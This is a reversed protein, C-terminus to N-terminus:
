LKCLTESIKNIIKNISPAFVFIFLSLLVFYLLLNVYKVLQQPDIVTRLITETIIYIEFSESAMFHLSNRGVFVMLSKIFSTWKAVILSIGLTLITGIIGQLIDILYYGNKLLHYDIVQNLALPVLAGGTIATILIIMFTNNKIHELQEMIFSKHAFGLYGFPLLIGTRIIMFVLNYVISLLTGEHGMQNVGFSALYCVTYLAFVFAGRYVHNNIFILRRIIFKIIWLSPLFWLTYLGSLTIMKILDNVLREITPNKIIDVIIYIGSYFLYASFLKTDRLLSQKFSIKDDKIMMGAIVFFLPVHFLYIYRQPYGGCRHGMFVLLIGIAKAVDIESIRNKNKHEVKKNM